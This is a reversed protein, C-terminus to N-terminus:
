KAKGDLLDYARLVGHPFVGVDKIDPYHAAHARMDIRKAAEEASVGAKHLQEVQNWFDRLYAQFYDIKEKGRFAQGHGPLIVDFDLSKLRELTEVWDQPYGDGLYSTGATLLDGTM